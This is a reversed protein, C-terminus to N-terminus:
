KRSQGPRTFGSIRMLQAAQLTGPTALISSLALGGAHQTAPWAQRRMGIAPSIQLWSCPLFMAMSIQQGSVQTLIATLAQRCAQM